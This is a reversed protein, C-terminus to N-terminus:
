RLLVVTGSAKVTKGTLVDEYQVEWVYTGPPQPHGDFTGDWGVGGNATEFVRMGGRDYVAFSKIRPSQSPPIRFVDNKGDGNPTFANPMGFPYYVIITEKGSAQCGNNNTVTLQYTTTSVPDAVPSFIDPNNLGASPTWHWTVTTGAVIPNLLTATGGKM